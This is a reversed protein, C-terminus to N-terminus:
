QFAYGVWQHKHGGQFCSTKDDYELDFDEFRVATSSGWFVSNKV